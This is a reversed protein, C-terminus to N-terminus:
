GEAIFGDGYASRGVRRVEFVAGMSIYLSMVVAWLLRGTTMDPTAWSMLAVGLMMLCTVFSRVWMETPMGSDGQRGRTHIGLLNISLVSVFVLAVGVGFLVHMAVILSLEDLRWIVHPLPSWLIIICAVSVCTCLANVSAIQASLVCAIWRRWRETVLVLHLIGFQGLLLLDWLMALGENTRSGISPESLGLLFLGVCPVTIGAAVYVLLALVVRTLEDM